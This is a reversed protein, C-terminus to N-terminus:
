ACARDLLATAADLSSLPLDFCDIRGIWAILEAINREDLSGSLFYVGRLLRALAEHRPLPVLATGHDPHFRPFVIWRVDVAADPAAWRLDRGPMLYRVQKGDPRRWEPLSPLRPYHARLVDCAGRKICLGTPLCRVRLPEGALLTTDDSLMEFGRAALGASLTSKGHGAEGPLVLAAGGRRLAGAHVACLGGSASVALRTLCARVAVAADELTCSSGIVEDGAVVAVGADDRMVDVDSATPMVGVDSATPTVGVDSVTACEAVKPRPGHQLLPHIREALGVSDYHVRFTSGLLSYVEVVGAGRRRPLLRRGAGADLPKGAPAERDDDLLAECQRLVDAVYDAAMDAPVAFQLNLSRAIEAPSRGDELLRWIFTACANVAYLRQRASDLLLGEEGVLHLSLDAPATPSSM